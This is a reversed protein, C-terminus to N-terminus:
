INLTYVFEFECVEKLLLSLFYFDNLISFQAGNEARAFDYEM